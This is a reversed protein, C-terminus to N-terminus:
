RFKLWEEMAEGDFRFGEKDLEELSPAGMSDLSDSKSQLEHMKMMIKVRLNFLEQKVNKDNKLWYEVNNKNNKDYKINM